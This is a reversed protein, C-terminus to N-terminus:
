VRGRRFEVPALDPVRLLCTGRRMPKAGSWEARDPFVPVQHKRCVRASRPRAVREQVSELPEEALRLDGLLVGDVPVGQPVAGRREPDLGASLVEYQM